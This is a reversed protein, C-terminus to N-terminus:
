LDIKSPDEIDITMIFSNDESCVYFYIISPKDCEDKMKNFEEKLKNPLKSYPSYAVKMENSIKTIMLMGDEGVLKREGIYLQILDRRKEKLFTSITSNTDM